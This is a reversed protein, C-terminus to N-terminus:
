IEIKKRSLYILGAVGAFMIFILSYLNDGTKPNVSEVLAYTSFHNTEFVAYIVNDVKEIKVQHNEVTGDEKVYAAVLNKNTLSEDIPIYVKFSGDALKTIYMNLSTSYLNLDFALEKIVKVKKSIAKYEDSKPDLKTASLKSDLPADYSDTMVYINTNIDGTTMVPNNMLSSDRAIIFSYENDDIKVIYWEGTTKDIDFMELYEISDTGENYSAYKYEEDDLDAIKGGYTIEIKSDKLYSKIREKAAAVFAERTKETDSPVYLINYSLFGVPEVTQYLVGDYLISMAGISGTYFPVGIGAGGVFEFSVKEDNAAKQVKSSYNPLKSEPFSKVKTSNYLYNLNELDTLLYWKDTNKMLDKWTSKYKEAIANVKKAVNEDPKVFEFKVDFTQSISNQDFGKQIQIQTRTTDRQHKEEDWVYSAYGYYGEPLLSELSSGTAWEFNEETPEICNLKIVGNPAIKEFVEVLEKYWNSFKINLKYYTVVPENCEMGMSYECPDYAFVEIVTSKEKEKLTLSYNGKPELELVVGDLLQKGTYEKTEVSGDYKTYELIYNKSKDLENGTLKMSFTKYPKSSWGYYQNLFLEGHGTQKSGDWENGVTVPFFRECYKNPEESTACLEQQTTGILTNDGKIDSVKYYEKAKALGPMVFIAALAFLISGLIKKKM